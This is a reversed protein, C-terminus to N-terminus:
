LAQRILNTNRTPVICQNSVFKRHVLSENLFKDTYTDHGFVYTVRSRLYARQHLFTSIIHLHARGFFKGFKLFFSCPFALRPSSCECGCISQRIMSFDASNFFSLHRKDRIKVGFLWQLCRIRLDKRFSM